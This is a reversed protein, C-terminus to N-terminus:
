CEERRQPERAQSRISEVAAETRFIARLRNQLDAPRKVECEWLVEVEWGAARLAAQVQDDRQQNRTLKASWFERNSAPVSARSCGPHVHWFCGHVFLALKLKAFVLDPSGPLSRQHLRYRYGMHHVARRVVMEPKTDRGRVARMMASRHQPSVRDM